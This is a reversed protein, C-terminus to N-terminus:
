RPVSLQDAVHLVALFRAVSPCPLLRCRGARIGVGVFRHRAHGVGVHGRAFVRGSSMMPETLFPM